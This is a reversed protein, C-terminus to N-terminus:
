TGLIYDAGPCLINEMKLKSAQLFDKAMVIIRQNKRETRLFGWLVGPTRLMYFYLTFSSIFAAIVLTDALYKVESRQSRGTLGIWNSIKCAITIM